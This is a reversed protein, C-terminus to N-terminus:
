KDNTLWRQLALLETPPNGLLRASVESLTELEAAIPTLAFADPPSVRLTM